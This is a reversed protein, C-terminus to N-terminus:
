HRSRDDMLDMGNKLQEEHWPDNNRFVGASERLM